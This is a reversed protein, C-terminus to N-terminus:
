AASTSGNELTWQVLDKLVKGLAQDFAEVITAMRDAATDDVHDVHHTGVIIRNPSSVLTADIRVHAKPPGLASYEAQFERLETRLVFDARLSAAERSVAVIRESNQFSEIIRTSVTPPM